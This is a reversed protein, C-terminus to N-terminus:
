GDNIKYSCITFMGDEAEWSMYDSKQSRPYLKNNEIVVDSGNEGELSTDSKLTEIGSEDADTDNQLIPKSRSVHVEVTGNPRVFFKTEEM